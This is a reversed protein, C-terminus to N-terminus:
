LDRRGEGARADETRAGRGRGAAAPHVARHFTPHRVRRSPQGGCPYRGRNRRRRLHAGCAQPLWASLARVGVAVRVRSELRRRSRGAQRRAQDRRATRDRLLRGGGVRDATAAGRLHRHARAGGGAERGPGKPDGRQRGISSGGAGLQLRRGLLRHLGQGNYCDGGLAFARAGVDRHLRHSAAPVFSASAVSSRGALRASDTLVMSGGLWRRAVSPETTPLGSRRAHLRDDSRPPAPRVQSLLPIAATGAGDGIGVM